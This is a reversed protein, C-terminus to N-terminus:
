VYRHGNFGGKAVRPIYQLLPSHPFGRDNADYMPKIRYQKSILAWIPQDRHTLDEKSYLNWFASLAKQIKKNNPDYVFVTNGFMPDDPTMGKDILYAATMACNEPSDKKSIQIANIENFVNNIHRIQFIGSESSIAANIYQTLITFIPPPKCTADCYIIADFYMNHQHFYQWAMFKGYRSRTINKNCTFEHNNMYIQDWSTDERNVKLNTFMYYSVEPIRDFKILQDADEISNAFLSTVFCVKM